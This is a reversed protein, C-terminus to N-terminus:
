YAHQNKENNNHLHTVVKKNKGKKHTKKKVTSNKKQLDTHSTKFSFTEQTETTMPSNGAKEEVKKQKNDWHGM